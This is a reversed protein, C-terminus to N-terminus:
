PSTATDTSSAFYHPSSTSSGHGISSERSRTSKAPSSFQQLLASRTQSPRASIIARGADYVSAPTTPFVDPSPAACATSLPRRSRWDEIDSRGYATPNPFKALIEDYTPRAPSSRIHAEVPPFHSAQSEEKPKENDEINEGARVGTPVARDAKPFRRLGFSADDANRGGFYQFGMEVVYTFHNGKTKGKWLHSAGGLLLRVVASELIQQKAEM